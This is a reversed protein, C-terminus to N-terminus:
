ASDAVGDSMGPHPAHRRELPEDGGAGPQRRGISLSLEAPDAAVPQSERSLSAAGTASIRSTVNLQERENRDLGSSGKDSGM